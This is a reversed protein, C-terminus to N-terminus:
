LEHSQFIVKKDRNDFTVRYRDFIDMGLLNFGVGLKSSFGIKMGFEDDGVRFGVRHLYIPIFSGDGVVALIREGASVEVDLLEAVKDDFITYFSGSDVYAWLEKWKGGTRLNVPILPVDRRRHRAYAFEIVRM